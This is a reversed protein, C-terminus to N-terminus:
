APARGILGVTSRHWLVRGEAEQIKLALAGSLLADRAGHTCSFEGPDADSKTVDVILLPMPKRAVAHVISDSLVPEFSRSWGITVLVDAESIAKLWRGYLTVFPEYQPLKAGNGFVVPSPARQRTWATLEGVKEDESDHMQPWQNRGYEVIEGNKGRHVHWAISGHLKHLRLTSPEDFAAPAWFGKSRTGSLDTWERERFGTTFQIGAQLCACEVALDFNLTFVERPGILRALAALYDVQDASFDRALWKRLGRRIRHWLRDFALGEAQSWVGSAAAAYAAANTPLDQLRQAETRADARSGVFTLLEPVWSEVFPALESTSFHRLLRITEAVAEFSDPNFSPTAAQKMRRRVLEYLQREQEVFQRASDDQASRQDDLFSRELLTFLDETQPLGADCSAGAGLM